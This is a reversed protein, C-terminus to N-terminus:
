MVPSTADTERVQPLAGLRESLAAVVQEDKIAPLNIKVNEACGLLGARALYIACSLDSAANPNSRGLLATALDLVRGCREANAMPVRAANIWAEQIAVLRGGREEDSRKPLRFAARVAEFARSDEEGGALLLHSLSEAEAAIQEYFHPAEMGERGASLRAVMAVLAGAMAGALASATGGGTSSDSPDLVKLFATVNHNM